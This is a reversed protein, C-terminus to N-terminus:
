PEGTYNKDVGFRIVYNRPQSTLSEYLNAGGLLPKKIQCEITSHYLLILITSYRFNLYNSDSKM